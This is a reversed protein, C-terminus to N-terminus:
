HSKAGLIRLSWYKERHRLADKKRREKKACDPCYKIRRSTSYINKGCIVCRKPYGDSHVASCLSWDSPLVAFRFWKCLVSYSWWQVCPCEEGDDLVICNGNDYNCCQNRILKRAELLQDPTMIPINGITLCWGSIPRTGTM